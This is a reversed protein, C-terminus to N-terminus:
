LNNFYNQADSNKLTQLSTILDDLEDRIHRLENDKKELLSTYKKKTKELEQLASQRSESLLNELENERNKAKLAIDELKQSLKEFRERDPPWLTYADQLKNELQANESKLHTIVKELENIKDLANDIVSIDVNKGTESELVSVKAKWRACEDYSEKMISKLRRIESELYASHQAKTEDRIM